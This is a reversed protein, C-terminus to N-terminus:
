ILEDGTWTFPFTLNSNGMSILEDRLAKGAAVSDVVFTGSMSITRDVSNRSGDQVSSLNISRPSTFSMRGVTVQNAM